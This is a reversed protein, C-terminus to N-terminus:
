GCGVPQNDAYAVVVTDVHLLVNHQDYEDQLDQYRDRLEADLLPVLYLFDPSENNTRKLAFM